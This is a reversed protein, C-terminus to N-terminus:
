WESPAPQGHKPVLQPRLPCTRPCLAVTTGRGQELRLKGMWSCSGTEQRGWIYVLAQLKRWWTGKLAAVQPAGVLAQTGGAPGQQRASLATCCPRVSPACRAAGGPVGGQAPQPQAAARPSPGEVSLKGEAAHRLSCPQTGPTGGAGHAEDLLIAGAGTLTRRPLAKCPTQFGSQAWFAAGTGTAARDGMKNVGRNLPDPDGQATGPLRPSLWAAGPCCASSPVSVEGSPKM